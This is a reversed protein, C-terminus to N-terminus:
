FLPVRYRGQFELILYKKDIYMSCKDYKWWKIWTKISMSVFFIWSALSMIQWWDILLGLYQKFKSITDKHSNFLWFYMITCEFSYFIIIMSILYIISKWNLLYRHLGPVIISPRLVTAQVPLNQFPLTGLQLPLDKWLM